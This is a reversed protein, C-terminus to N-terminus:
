QEEDRDETVFANYTEVIQAFDILSNRIIVAEAGYRVYNMVLTWSKSPLPVSITFYGPVDESPSTGLLEVSEDDGGTSWEPKISCDVRLHYIGDSIKRLQVLNVKGPADSSYTVTIPLDAGSSFTSTPPAKLKFLKRREIELLARFCRQCMVPGCGTDPACYFTLGRASEETSSRKPTYGCASCPARVVDLETFSRAQLIEAFSGHDYNLGRRYFSLKENKWRKSFSKLDEELYEHTCFYAQVNDHFLVARPQHDKM